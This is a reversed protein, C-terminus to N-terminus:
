RPRRSMLVDATLPQVVCTTADAPAYRWAKYAALAAHHIGLIPILPLVTVDGAPTACLRYVSLAHSYM